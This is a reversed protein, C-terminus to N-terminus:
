TTPYAWLAALDDGPPSATIDVMQGFVEQEKPLTKVDDKPEKNNYGPVNMGTDRHIIM